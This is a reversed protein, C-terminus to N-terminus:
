SNGHSRAAGNGNLIHALYHGTYSGPLEAIEEPTGSGLIKGGRAGGEPGLDIVWDATKIVELNHEIVVISGGVDILRRFAALLKSVDDFHLGTTPEDFIYLLRPKSRAESHVGGLRRAREAPQLHAALKMRQAEGGSLTTASQGLRLYGLGVEELSRLKDTIKPAEAFFKLGEKVTMNLVEHINKGRYRVELVQLKYRTGKCEECILEVDALFQMEVTVTGDGQCVECRGGPINFSFHGAAFGRKKSEPLSAFLDRMADFAKIYTVPNSRPTRGIPSQDVLVVEDIFEDGEISEWTAGTPLGNTIQKKAQSLAQFLVQHLLTSKGSGSVGTIAVLMGLPVNVDVGKLNNARAGHIVIQKLGPKRRTAPAQIRLDNSLYRGTLSIPNRRIEDYTGEAVLKGGSEGAGPGMDLIRDSARMIDPDHEVVLITNGLNRLDHLIRILRHTDRSHLGISPEDLVYLTGVLRSGLSTALQIRQAEGGSLTSSLRDLTLYELGVDNLFRLRERIEQLLKDAIEAEEVSLLMDGFFVAADQVTMACVECINKGNIKVQRAELRLRSGRCDSCQSYGRYRSLFVRVHLKYKKRELHKFFGRVGFFKSDGDLVLQQQGCDLEAWPVDLPIDMQKAFRRLETFLPRYKPKTWPEVAGEALTKMPDPIVLGLDFDITNGFGQCRPCAGYPNNFSFLRPEPEEYRLGCRKCEFRQSFILQKAPQDNHPPIEFIVEGSERYATEIADVIRARAGASVTLRDVLMWVTQSFDIDLLSEPTSFEFVQGSQYIRNFGAKRLEFLRSKIADSLEAQEASAKKKSKRPTKATKSNRKEPKQTDSPQLPFFVQLRTDPDLALITDAVEDVTDKKVEGGCNVCYTRGVRAFLLRLYDYIETATAVTSRPNRTTNKQRIAVAPAIGDITDADPKEIRELFQRAYASLSEVYRRQGEAYITDFALSSKGSGSVGTVVTLTNHPVEFDINKLNHVRAGRVTISETSM